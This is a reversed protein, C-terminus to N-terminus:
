SSYSYFSSGTIGEVLALGLGLATIILSTFAIVVFTVISHEKQDIFSVLIASSLKGLSGEMQSM